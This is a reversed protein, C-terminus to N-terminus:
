KGHSLLVQYLLTTSKDIQHPDQNPDPDQHENSHHLDAVVPRCVEVAGNQDEFGGNQAM